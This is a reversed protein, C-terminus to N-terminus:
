LFAYLLRYALNKHVLLCSQYQIPQLWVRAAPKELEVLEVDYGLRFILSKYLLQRSVAVYAVIHKIIVKCFLQQGHLIKQRKKNKFQFSTTCALLIDALKAFQYVKLWMVQSKLKAMDM